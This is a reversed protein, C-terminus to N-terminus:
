AKTAPKRAAPKKAAPKNVAAPKAVPAKTTVTKSAVAPTAPAGGAPELDGCMGSQKLLQTLDAVTQTLLLIENERLEDLKQHVLEIELEAKININYDNEAKKRDIDQQRNQSMMIIPAAYAAQFSLVLNLLIFPYPDWHQIVAVLNLVVWVFLIVSQVIIFTWSGMAAAVFDAFRQGVTLPPEGDGADPKRQKRRVERLQQLMRKETDHLDTLLSM